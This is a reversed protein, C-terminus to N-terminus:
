TVRGAELRCNMASKDPLFDDGIARSHVEEYEEDTLTRGFLVKKWGPRCLYDYLGFRDGCFWSEREGDWWYYDDSTLLIKGHDEDEQAVVQVGRTPCEEPTGDESSFTSGDGYYVKWRM